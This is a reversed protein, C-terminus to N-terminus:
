LDLYSQYLPNRLAQATIAGYHNYGATATSNIGKRFLKSNSGLCTYVDALNSLAPDGKDPYLYSTSTSGNSPLVQCFENNFM